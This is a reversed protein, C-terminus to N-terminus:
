AAYLIQKSELIARRRYPNRLAAEEVLDVSRGFMDALEQQMTALDLLSWDGREDFSVLVDVDSDNRFDARLVSGFLALEAIKWRCCFDAIQEPAAIAPPNAM